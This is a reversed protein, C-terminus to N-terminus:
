GTTVAKFIESFKIQRTEGNIYAEMLCIEDLMLILTPSTSVLDFLNLMYYQGDKLIITQPQSRIDSLIMTAKETGKFEYPMIPGGLTKKMDEMDKLKIEKVNYSSLNKEKDIPMLMNSLQRIEEVSIQKLVTKLGEEMEQTIRAGHKESLEKAKEKFIYIKAIPVHDQSLKAKEPDHLTQHIDIEMVDPKDYFGMTLHFDDTPRAFVVKNITDKGGFYTIFQDGVRIKPPRSRKPEESEMYIMIM